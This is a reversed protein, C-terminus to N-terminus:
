DFYWTDDTCLDPRGNVHRNGIIHLMTERVYGFNGGKEKDPSFATVINYTNGDNMLEATIAIKNDSLLVMCNARRANRIQVTKVFRPRELTRKLLEIVTDIYKPMINKIHSSCAGYRGKEKKRCLYCNITPKLSCRIAQLKNRLEEVEGDETIGASCRQWGLSWEQKDLFHIVLHKRLLDDDYFIVVPLENPMHCENIVKEVLSFSKYRPHSKIDRKMKKYEKQRKQVVAHSM